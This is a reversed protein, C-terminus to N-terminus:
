AEAAPFAERETVIWDVRADREGHPVSPVEQAAFAVGVALPRGTARLAALTRDYFGGGYGLRWGRRDFALLPVILLEPVAEPTGAPVSVGFGGPAMRTEPTWRLFKLAEGRAVVVPLCCRYGLENLRYLLPRTDIEDGMPWFGAVVAGMPPLPVRKLFMDRLLAGADGARAVIRSRREAAERRLAKKETDIM